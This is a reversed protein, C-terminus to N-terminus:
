KNAESFYEKSADVDPKITASGPTWNCPLVTGNKDTWNFGEVLRLAEEVNRGVSLDNITIHRIKGLPDIIFLGRLAIGEEEILVGYDRSLSHNTDALLPINVPGLGGESRPVNTWALLSYESDTSAFLLQANQEEFRKSADSFAVIETPCVFSFALPVFALVVYKGKYQELSIEEFIGDVVATKKFTPAQKQVQAVM